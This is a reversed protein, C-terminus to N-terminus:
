THQHHSAIHACTGNIIADPAIHNMIVEHATAWQKAKLLFDAQAHHRNLAGARVAKAWYIWKEPVGLDSIIFKEKKLYEADESLDIYRYLMTQVAIERQSQNRIHLLVFIAWQWLGNAELQTAFSVHLHAESAESCHNYGLGRLVQLLLWSLRFDMLDASHTAPNLVTELPHSRKSYLQLLHYRIDHIQKPSNIRYENIYPPLPAAADSQSAEEYRLLADTISATPSCLYWVNIAIAKMWDMGDYINVAGATSEFSAVGAVLMLAKLYDMDVFKDAEISKWSDLQMQILARVTKSSSTQALLMSLNMNNSKFALECAEMVKHCTLLNLIPKLTGLAQDQKSLKKETVVNELWDSFLERRVMISAHSDERVDELEEQDGWLAVCLSWVTECFEDFAGLAAHEESLEFHDQLAKTSGSPLFFPCDSTSNIEAEAHKLQCKLHAEISQQFYKPKVYALSAIQLKQVVAPSTDSQQRGKFLNMIDRIDCESKLDRINNVTSLILLSNRHSWGIKFRRGNFFAVDAASNKALVPFLISKYLPMTIDSPRVIAVKPKLILPATKLAAAASKTPKRGEGLPILKRGGFERAMPMQPSLLPTDISGSTPTSSADKSIMSHTSVSFNSFQRKSPPIQDPSDRGYFAESIVSKGDDDDEVFFSAKMLQLKHSDTGMDMALHASPSTPQKKKLDFAAESDM